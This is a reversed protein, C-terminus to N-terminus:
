RPRRITLEPDVLPGEGKYYVKYTYKGPEADARVYLVLSRVNFVEFELLKGTVETTGKYAKITLDKAAFDGGKCQDIRQWVVLSGPYAKVDRALARCKGDPADYLAVYSEAIEPVKIKVPAAHACAGGTFVLVGLAFKRM